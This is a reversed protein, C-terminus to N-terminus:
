PHAADLFQECEANNYAFYSTCSKADLTGAAVSDEFELDVAEGNAHRVSVREIHQNGRLSISFVSMLIRRLQKDARSQVEQPQSNEGSWQLTKDTRYTVASQVPILTGMYIGHDRWFIYDGQSRLGGAVGAVERVQTFKGRVLQFQILEGAVADPTDYYCNM